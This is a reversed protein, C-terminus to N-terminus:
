GKAAVRPLSSRGTRWKESEVACTIPSIGNRVAIPMTHPGTSRWSPTRLTDGANEGVTAIADLVAILAEQCVGAFGTLNRVTVAVRKAIPVSVM